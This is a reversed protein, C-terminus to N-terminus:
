ASRAHRRLAQQLVDAAPGRGLPRRDLEAIPM